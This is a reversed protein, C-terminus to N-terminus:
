PLQPSAQVAAVAALDVAAAALSVAAAAAALHIAPEAVKGELAWYVRTLVVALVVLDVPLLHLVKEQIAPMVSTEVNVAPVPQELVVALEAVWEQPATGAVAVAVVPLLLVALLLLAELGFIQLVAVVPVALLGMAEAM